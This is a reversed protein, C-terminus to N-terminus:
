SQLNTINSLSKWQEEKELLLSFITKPIAMSQAEWTANPTFFGDALESIHTQNRPQHSGRSSLMSVETNKGPSDRSLAAQHAVTWLTVSDFM